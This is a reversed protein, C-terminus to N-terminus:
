NEWLDLITQCGANLSKKDPFGKKPGVTTTGSSTQLCEVGTSNVALGKIQAAEYLVHLLMASVGGPFDKKSLNLKILVLNGDEEAVLDPHASVVLDEFVYYLHKGPRITLKRTGFHKLYDMIARHNSLLKARKHPVTEAMAEKLLNQISSTVHASNGKHHQKILSLAKVYYNSRGV